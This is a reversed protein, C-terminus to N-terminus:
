DPRAALRCGVRRERCRGIARRAEDSGGAERQQEDERQGHERHQTRLARKFPDVIVTDLDQNVHHQAPPQVDDDTEGAQEVEAVDREIRDASIGIRQQRRCEAQREPQAQRKGANKRSEPANQEAKGHQPQAAIIQRDDGHREALDDADNEDTPAHHRVAVGTNRANRARAKEPQWERGPRITEGRCEAEFKRRNMAHDKEIIQDEAESQQGIEDGNPRAQSAKRSSSIAQRESPRSVTFSFSAAKASPAINPPKAPAKKATRWPNTEGDLKVKMSLAVIRAMTTSPPRPECSPTASAAATMMPPESIKRSSSKKFRIKPSSKSGVWYRMSITPIAMTMIIFQRGRPRTGVIASPSRRPM